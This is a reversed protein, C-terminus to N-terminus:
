IFLSGLHLVLLSVTCSSVTERNLVVCWSRSLLNRFYFCRHRLLAGECVWSVSVLNAHTPQDCDPTKLEDTMM